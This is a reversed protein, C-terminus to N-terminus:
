QEEKSIVFINPNKIPRFTSLDLDVPVAHVRDQYLLYLTDKKLRSRKSSDFKGPIINKSFLMISLSLIIVGLVVLAFVPVKVPFFMFNRITSIRRKKMETRFTDVAMAQPIAVPNLSDLGTKVCEIEEQVSRLIGQCSSCRSLHEEVNKRKQPLLENDIFARIIERKLCKM